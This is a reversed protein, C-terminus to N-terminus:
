IGVISSLQRIEKDLREADIEGTEPNVIERLCPPIEEPIVKGGEMWPLLSAYTAMRVALLTWYDIKMRDESFLLDSLADKLADTTIHGEGSRLAAMGMLDKLKRISIQEPLRNVISPLESEPIDLKINLQKALSRIINPITRKSPRLLPVCCGIRDALAPDILDPRNSCLVWIVKGKLRGDGMFNLLRGFMYGSTGSDGSPGEERGTLLQDAEDIFVVVPNMAEIAKLASDMNAESQGLWMSKLNRWELIPYGFAHAIPDVVFSKGTGPPGQLLFGAPALNYRGEKVAKVVSTVFRRLPEMGAVDDFTLGSPKRVVLLKGVLANLTSERVANLDDRNVKRGEAYAQRMVSEIDKLRCGRSLSLFEHETIDDDLPAFDGRKLLLQYYAKRDSEDPLPLGILCWNRRVLDHIVNGEYTIGIVFSDRRRLEDDMSVRMMIEIIRRTDPHLMDAMGNPILFAAFDIILLRREGERLLRIGRSLTEVPREEPSRHTFISRRGDDPRILPMMGTSQSYYGVDHQPFSAAIALRLPLPPNPSQPDFYRDNTNFQLLFATHGAKRKEKITQIFDLTAM